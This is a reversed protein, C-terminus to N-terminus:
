KPPTNTRKPVIFPTKQNSTIPAQLDPKKAKKKKGTRKDVM